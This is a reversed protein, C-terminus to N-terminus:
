PCAGTRHGDGETVIRVPKGRKTGTATSRITYNAPTYTGTSAITLGEPFRRNTCFTVYDFRGTNMTFRRVRCTAADDQTLLAHPTAMAQQPTLCSRRSRNGFMRVIFDPVGPVDASIMRTQHAWAGPMFGPADAVAPSALAVAGLGILLFRRAM